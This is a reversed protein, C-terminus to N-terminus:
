VVPPFLEAATLLPVASLDLALLEASFEGWGATVREAETASQMFRAVVLPAEITGTGGETLIVNQGDIRM